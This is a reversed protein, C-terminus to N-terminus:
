LESNLTWLVDEVLVEVGQQRLISAVQAADIIDAGKCFLEGNQAGVNKQRRQCVGQWIQNIQPILPHEFTESPWSKVPSVEHSSGPHKRSRLHREAQVLTLEPSSALLDIACRLKDLLSQALERPVLDESYVFDLELYDAHQITAIHIDVMGYAEDRPPQSIRYTTEYLATSRSRAHTHNVFSTFSMPRSSNTCDQLIRRTGLAEHAFNRSQRDSVCQLLDRLTWGAQMVIRFPLGTACCGISDVVSSDVAHRGSSIDAFMIDPQGTHLGLVLAWAAKVTIACAVGHLTSSPLDIRVIDFSKIITPFRTQDAPLLGIQPMSCGRLITRWYDYTEQSVQSVLNSMYASFPAHRRVTRGGCISHFIDWIMRISTGDYIAHSVRFLIRHEQTGQKSIIAIDIPPNGLRFPRHMNNKILTQTFSQLTGETEYHEIGPDYSDLVFQLMKTGDFVFATRLCEVEQILQLCAEKLQKPSYAGDGDLCVYNLEAHGKTLNGAMCWAQFDTVPLGDVISIKMKDPVALYGQKFVENLDRVGLLSFPQYEELWNNTTSNNEVFSAMDALVPHQFVDAVTLDLRKGRARAILEMAVVSDGGLHFINDHRGILSEEIQLLSSWIERLVHEAETALVNNSSQGLLYRSFDVASISAIIDRLRGRDLKGSANLPLQTMPIYVNPVMYAPLVALLSTRLHRHSEQLIDSPQMPAILTENDTAFDKQELELACILVMQRSSTGRDILDVSVKRIDPQNRLIGSEIEGVEVRQGRIKIQTDRRGIFDLSGDNNQRVLDGTRYMRQNQSMHFEENKVWLPNTIFSAATRTPDNLYGNGLQPGELLLEGPAGMPCLRDYDTPLTVWFRCAVPHGINAAVNENGPILPVRRCASKISCESPGYSNLLRCSQGWATVISPDLPEGGVVVTKVSPLDKPRLLSVVTPTLNLFNVRMESIAKSLNNMRDTESIVCVCGGRFLTAFIDSISVDFTFAAFQLARTEVNMGFRQSHEVVSSCLASHPLVSGKPTGTSGSTYIIWAVHDPTITSCAPTTHFPLGSLLKDDIVITPLNVAELRQKQKADVLMLVPGSDQLIAEIRARPHQVGLPVVTGGAKLVALMAIIAWKSKDMCVAITAQPRAGFTTVYQALRSASDWLDEYTLEGDWACVAIASPQQLVTNKVLDHLCKDIRPPMESSWTALLQKDCESVLEIDRVVRSKTAEGENAFALQLFIHEFQQLLNNVAVTSLVAEDFRVEIGVASNQEDTTCEVNLAYTHVSADDIDQEELGLEASGDGQMDIKSIVNFIHGPDFNSGLGPVFRRINQLGTHEFPIMDIAQRRIKELFDHISESDEIRVRFPVTTVTPAILDMIEPVPANRGSLAVNLVAEQEATYAAVLLVWTARLVISTTVRGSGGSTHHKVVRRRMKQTARPRYSASPPTPFKTLTAGELQEKWFARVVDQDQRVIHRIFRPMPVLPTQIDSNYLRALLNLMKLMSWGDYTSHHITWVFYRAPGPESSLPDEIELIAVRCLQHGYTMPIAQDRSLYEQVSSGTSWSVPERVVVQVSGLDPSPVIRTRLIPLLRALREWAAKFQATDVSNPLRFVRRAVYSNPNWATIAMLGEQLATCPYVDEIQTHDVKCQKALDQLLVNYDTHVTEKWLSFPMPDSEGSNFAENAEMALAMDSLRPNRFIDAVTLVIQDKQASAVIKMAMVSDGGLQFFDDNAGINNPEKGFERAWLRHLRKEAITQPLDKTAPEMRMFTNLAQEDLNELIRHLAGRDRKSSANLPLQAIPVYVKPVMYPPLVALLSDQLKSFANRIGDLSELPAQTVDLGSWPSTTKFELTAVLVNDGSSRSRPCILDVTATHVEPLLHIISNEIEGIEVRQGRVKIQTDRRGLFTLSGDSNQRVLDGTRYMRRASRQDIKNLKGMFAPDIVFATKTKAEDYLYGRALLPGEILLEGPAGIPSLQNFDGPNTIWFRGALPYGVISASKSDAIVNYSSHISCEAPGYCNLLRAHGLWMRVVAPDVAEGVFMLTKIAPIPQLLGAVTSTLAISNAGLRQISGALNNVREEESPVCVCGGSCLVTFIDSISIDFTYASFQFHRTATNIGFAPGHAQISTCIAAHDLVIGKPTGTSGSTYIIWAANDPTLNATSYFSQSPDPLDNLLAENVLETHPTIGELREAQKADVLLLAAKANHLIVKVRAKPHQLGLPVVVGGAQLIALMAVVTWKSKDMCLGVTTEPGINLSTALYYSLRSAAKTLDHYTLDGDWACVAATHPQQLSREQVLEHICACRSPPIQSNWEQISRKDKESILELDQLLQNENATERNNISSLQVFIHQFQQLLSDIEAVNLVAEDFYVDANITNAKENTTCELVLPYNYTSEGNVQQEELGYEELSTSSGQTELTTRVNFIHGPDFDAGLGPVLRRINQLGTHEYPIMDTAQTHISRLFNQVTDSRNIRVRLPLSTITPATLEMIEVVPANRGSIAINFVAEDEATYSAILLAWAARLVTSSTVVGNTPQQAIPWHMKQSSRPQPQYSGNPLSPFKTLSVGKLQQQWFTRTTDEDRERRVLYKIFRSMPVVTPPTYSIDSIFQMLLNQMKFMSWGDYVCHHITWVFYQADGTEVIAVRSLPKGYTMPAAQDQLLYSAVSNSSLWAVPEQIVVQLSGAGPAMVIRTRLIGLSETFKNWAAKFHPVDVNKLRFLRRMTYAKPNWATIAMLGEQLATCPYVDEIQDPAVDCQTALEKLTTAGTDADVHNVDQWLGFRPPDVEEEDLGRAKKKEVLRALDSLRTYRFIDEVAIPVQAHRALAVIRMAAVSDGGLQFFDDNAGITEIGFEQVWLERVQKEAETRPMQKSSESSMFISLDKENTRLIERLAARDRKGSANLPLQSIPFITRPVMYSPLVTLLSDQLQLFVDRLSELRGQELPTQFVDLGYWQSTTKFEIAAVLTPENSRCQLNVQDVTASQIDPLFRAMFNEIENVEAKQGRIKIQTDRRGLSSLSGDSNQRVLDGTRYMRQGKLTPFDKVWLPNTIFAALTKEPDNLYGKGLQPGDVVLEGPAGIPCLRNHDTPLTVWFRCAVPHGINAAEKVDTTPCRRVASKISCESPGYSNILRCHNGWLRIVNPTLPEGGVVITEVTPLDAPRLLGVVTPTLSMFNVQMSSIAPTLANMRDHESIVCVCGGRFLTAFVDMITADYTFAAFQLARTRPTMGFLRSHTMLSSCLASHPLLSGKPAGTSGSSFIVWAIDDPAVSFAPQNQLPLGEIFSDNILLNHKAIGGLRQSQKEDLIAATAKANRLISEIRARPHQIGLPVVGGGAQLIALMSVVAWKSKDMCLGVLTGAAGVRVLYHALRNATQYLEMYTLTGDWACIAPAHPQQATIEQVIDHICREVGVPKQVNWQRVCEKDGKSIVELDQVLPVNQDARKEEAENISCLQLFIHELLELLRNAENTSLVAEDFYAELSVTRNKDDVTCGINLAYSHISPGDIAQEELGVNMNPSSESTEVTTRVNFVHGPDFDTGLGVLKRINQLGTHEFPIMETAQRHVSALFSQVTDKRNIRIRFPVNTATAAVLDMIHPIPANRGSLALGLTAEDEGTYTAVTLAWASRLVTSATVLGPVYRQTIHRHVTQTANPRYNIDPLTPFRTLNVGELQKQWFERTADQDQLTLYRIFRSMPVLPPIPENRNLQQLLDLTRYMSWGDYISHHITWVFFRKPSDRGEIIAVRCLQGGYTMPSREDEVLYDELSKGSLWLVPSQTVVQMSNSKAMPVIRTRLTPLLSVLNEWIGKFNSSELTDHVQFVRRLTYARPNWVATIAMLGEQLPTCPYVDEVQDHSVNCQAAVDDLLMKRKPENTQAYEKWLTFPPPDTEPDFSESTQTVAEALQSLTPCQFIEAVTLNLQAKRASAVIKMATVSDGGLQFFNDNMGISDPDESLNFEELWLHHLRQELETRPRQKILDKGAFLDLTQVDLTELAHRLARRDRKGSVNVPLHATPIVIWPVMYPPLVTMLSDRLQHLIDQLGEIPQRPAEFADTGFWKSTSKFEITAVLATKESKGSLQVQDVTAMHVEPLFHVIWGEIESVEVRQGRIKIQTDGRGLFTFSGDDNQRVFDGTRYMRHGGALGLDHIFDPDHIFSANTKEADNIYSRALLPGEILLEGPAGITCLRNESDVVWFSGSLPLGIVPAEEKTVVLNHSSHICCEAPGYANIVRAHELWMEVVVPHVAEGVLVLTKLSPIDRPRLLGAVTSTLTALNANSRQIFGTIDNMREEESPICVCGGFSLTAFMDSISVDFPYASFQFCRTHKDLGFATGHAHFSTCLASHELIIGKPSGTSGSTHIIWASNNPKVTSCAPEDKPKLNNVFTSDIQITHPAINDLREAQKMDVLLITTGANLLTAEVRAMPHQVGVPLVTGGAQLIALMAVVAWRSKDMCLAVTQEPGVGLDVLHHALGSAARHLEDYTFDGDWAHIAPAHLQRETTKHVLHHICKGVRAPTQSNWERIRQMDKPSILRLDSLRLGDSNISRTKSPSSLQLFIHEFQLLLSEVQSYSCVAEDFTVEVEVSHDKGNAICDVNLAYSYLSNRPVVQEELKSHTTSSTGQEEIAAHVAFIHGPDFDAGLEPVMRRINQLGTHEFPIMETAQSQIAALFSQVTDKSNDVRIRVPVTTVTPAILEMIDPVPANRGSLAVNIIAEDEGTRATILLAWTARLITSSTFGSSSAGTICRRMTQTAQPQYSPHPLTPFKTFSVAELQSRWFARTLSPDQQELHRVFRSMPVVSLPAPISDKQNLRALLDLTKLMSWGDYVSHHITWVFHRDPKPQTADATQVIAVRCLRGGYTMTDEEDRAIYTELANDSFWTVPERVVVQTSGVIRTRLIPLSESLTEWAEKFKSTDLDDSLRFVRRMIYAKPNWATIAMLGEQLPTCPYVDEIQDFKLDCQEAIDRLLSNRGELELPAAEKWLSFPPPDEDSEWENNTERTEIAQALESLRPHRFIDTVTLPIRLKRASAVMRMGLVSDGGLQFFDDNIGIDEAEKSFEQVWLGHVRKEAETQPERKVGVGSSFATLQREDLAELAERLAKRDRKGSANVPLQSVPFILRPVMYRPLVTCLADQLRLLEDDLGDIQETPPHFIDLASWRSTKEFEIVAVLTPDRSHQKGQVYILEVTVTKVESLFRRISEEIEGIEVRQGRIKVQTDRRGLITLSGDHNYRVLDGSRYVRKNVAQPFDKIWWPNTVFSAATKEPNNLYGLGIPPGDLLLEGIAGIPSLRNHDTPTAVWFRCNVPYGLFSADKRNTLPHSVVNYICCESPGYSNFITSTPSWFEIVNPDLPEGGCSLTKMGPVDSPRLLNIVTSTISAYNAKTRNISNTLDSMREDESIVCVCGGYFLTGYIESISQDFTFASFQLTRTRANLGFAKCFALMSSCLASHHLISGKPTGTSGSSYIIWAANKSTVSTCAPEVYSPLREILPQDVVITRVSTDKLDKLREFQKVDVLVVSAKTDQLIGEIRVIPHQIGLPLATGGAQLIALTAIIAWKSKDMCFGVMVDPGVGLSALYHSLPWAAQELEKYTLEGDWGSVAISDPHQKVAKAVLEHICEDVYNLPKSNWADITAIDQRSLLSLENLKTNKCSSLMSVVHLLHEVLIKATKNSFKEPKYQLSAEIEEDAIVVNVNMDYETPDEAEINELVISESKSLRPPPKRVHTMTTNFLAQQSNHLSHQIDALPARQHDFGDLFRKQLSRLAELVTSHRDIQIHCILMNIMPGVLRHVGTIPVDRGSSLYGFCAEDSGTYSALILAWALQCVSAITIGYTEPFEYLTSSKPIQATVSTDADPQGISGEQGHTLSPLYCPEVDILLNKWYLLDEEASRGSLFSVYTSYQSSQEKHLPHDYAQIFDGVLLEVSSADVLTHSIEFYGYVHGAATTIITFRHPLRGFRYELPQLKNTQLQIDEEHGSRVISVNAKQTKYVVQIYVNQSMISEVFVTRMISHQEIVRQWAHIIRQIDVTQAKDAPLIRCTKTMRYATPFRSQSLLIGQQIPSCPLIDDVDRLSRMPSSSQLEKELTTLDAISLNALPFDSPTVMPEHVILAEVLETITKGYADVLHRISEQRSAHKSFTVRVKLRNAIVNVSIDIAAPARTNAGVSAVDYGNGLESLDELTFFANQAELQQYRGHYNFLVEMPSRNEYLEKGADTLFRAAFHPLGRGQLQRRCEKTQMLTQISDDGDEIAVHLPTIITFWGVTNSPDITDNWTERGHSENFIAPLTRNPFIRRFSHFFAAILIEVPESRLTENASGLLATTTQEDVDFTHHIADGMTYQGPELAWYDWRALPVDFPLPQSQSTQTTLLHCWKPFSLTHHTTLTHLQLLDQLDRIIIRWSVLDVVLHHAAMFLLQSQSTDIVDVSFVPGLELDLSAQSHNLIPGIDQKNAIRHVRLRYSDTLKKEIRQSWRSSDIRQFRARLMAHKAVLTEVARSLESLSTRQQIRLCVSQNFRNEGDTKLGNAAIDRMFMLQVPSLDFSGDPVESLDGLTDDLMKTEQALESIGSSELVNRVSVSIGLPRCASAVQMATISDGGLSLFSRRYAIKNEDLNLVTGWVERLAREVQTAPLDSTDDAEEFDVFSAATDAHMSTIWSTIKLRDTKGSANVPFAALPIWISPVMYEMVFQSLHDRVSSAQLAAAPKDEDDIEIIEPNQRVDAAFDHLRPLGVLRGALPGSRAFIVIANQVASHRTIYFEIEGIEVRQGRIKIQTDQRGLFSLSGDHNQRVLDGTRYMRRPSELDLEHIFSPDVVFSAATKLTDHLYGRALLPGEILLEGPAGPPSLQNYNNPDTVWFCGILPLGVCTADDRSSITTCSAHMSCEAPGYANILRAHGLWEEIVAPQPAEGVFVLTDVLPIKTPKLVGAVTSTLTTFNVKLSCIAEPLGYIREDESPVCVCGGHALIACIDSISIDFTYAAFQLGRTHKGIGLAVSHVEVSSCIAAHDLVVGKPRGTSGSTHIIWAANDPVVSLCAPEMRTPLSSLFSMDVILSHPSVESLREAQQKDVLVVAAETNRLVDEIRALPHQVGLPVVVGGAQLTALMALVALRSKDMCLGVMVEPGVGLGVLYHALRNASDLLESYTLEGDWACVATASPEQAAGTRIMDHVLTQSRSKIDRNRSGIEEKHRPTLPTFKGIFEGANQVVFEISEKFFDLISQACYQEM